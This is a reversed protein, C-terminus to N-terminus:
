TSYCTSRRSLRPPPRPLSRPRPPRPPPAPHCNSSPPRPHLPPSPPCCPPSPLPHPPLCLSNITFAAGGGGQESVHSVHTIFMSHLGSARAEAPRLRSFWALAVSTISHVSIPPTQKRGQELLRRTGELRQTVEEGETGETGEEQEEQEEQVEQVEERSRRM